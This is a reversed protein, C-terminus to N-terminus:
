CYSVTEYDLASALTLIGYTANLHFMSSAWRSTIAYTPRSASAPHGVVGVFAEVRGVTVGVVSDEAVDFVYFPLSFEALNIPDDPQYLSVNFIVSTSHQGDSASICLSYISTVSVDLGSAVQLVGARVCTCMLMMIMM